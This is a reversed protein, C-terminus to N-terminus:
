STSSRRPRTRRNGSIPNFFAWHWLLPLAGNPDFTANLTAALMQAHEAPLTSDQQNTLGLGTLDLESVPHEDPWCCHEADHLAGIEAPSLGLEEALIEDTHEGLLPAPRPAQRPSAM